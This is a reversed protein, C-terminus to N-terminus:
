HSENLGGLDIIANSVDLDGPILKPLLLDRTRRLNKIQFIMKQIQDVSDRVFDDFLQFLPSPPILVPYNRLVVWDARPMKTGKSTQTAHKVFEESSVCALGISFYDHMKSSIVITDSSCVGDVPAIGVKHFYPRIKGFLIDGKKFALKTSKVDKANGWDSLAISKRPLHELGFYPTEPDIQDPMIGRRIEQAIDGLRKEEWGKPIEGLPSDVM